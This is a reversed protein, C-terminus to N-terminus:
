RLPVRAAYEQMREEVLDAYEASRNYTLIAARRRAPDAALGPGSRCLYVGAAAAADYLNQPDPDGDGTLDTGVTRWTGPLFQMPGVARDTRDTGDLRGDDSDPVVAFRNSGDLDPGYIPPSVVGDTGLVADRYTGHRSETRGIGALLSWTVGCDPDRVAMYREARWYADLALTSMETGEVTADLRARRLQDTTEVIRGELAARAAALEARSTEARAIRDDLEDARTQLGQLEARLEDLRAVTHRRERLLRDAAVQGLVAQRGLEDRREATLTPDLGELLHDGVVFREITLAALATRTREAVASAKDVQAARREATSRVAVVERGDVRLQEDLRSEDAAAEDRRQVLDDLVVELRDVEVSTAPVEAVEPSLGAGIGPVAEGGSPGAQHDVGAAAAPGGVLVASACVLVLPAVARALGRGSM